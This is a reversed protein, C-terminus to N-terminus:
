GKCDIVGDGCGNQPIVLPKDKTYPTTTPVKLDEKKHLFTFIAIWIFIILVTAFIWGQTKNM